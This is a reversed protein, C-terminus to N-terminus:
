RGFELSLIELGRNKLVGDHKYFLSVGKDTVLSIGQNNKFDGLYTIHWDPILIIDKFYKKAFYIFKCREKNGVFSWMEALEVKIQVIEVTM